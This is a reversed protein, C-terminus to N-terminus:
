FIYCVKMTEAIDDAHQTIQHPCTETLRIITLYALQKIDHIDGLGKQVHEVFEHFVVRDLCHEVLNYLSFFSVILLFILFHFFVLWEFASRRLEIGDDVQFFNSIVLLKLKFFRVMNKFPGM